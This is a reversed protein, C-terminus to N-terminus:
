HAGFIKQHFNKKKKKKKEFLEHKSMQRFFFFLFLTLYFSFIFRIPNNGKEGRREFESKVGAAILGQM